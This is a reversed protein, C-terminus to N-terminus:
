PGESIIADDLVRRYLIARAMVRRYYRRDGPSPGHDALNKAGSRYAALVKMIDPAGDMRYRNQYLRLMAVGGPVNNFPDWPDSIKLTKVASPMLQMIGMAGAPSLARVQFRSEEDAVSLALAPDVGMAIATDRVLAFLSM